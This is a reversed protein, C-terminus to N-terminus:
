KLPLDAIKWVALMRERIVADDAVSVRPQPFRFPARMLNLFRVDGSEIDSNVRISQDSTAILHRAGSAKINAILRWIDGFSLHFIVERCLVTDASPIPTPTADLVRFARTKNGYRQVNTEIVNPVIDIGQYICDLTLEKMWTFDGCGIDLLTETELLKLLGPLLGRISETSALESGPGSLSVDDRGDTWVRNKYIAVFRESLSRHYLHEV